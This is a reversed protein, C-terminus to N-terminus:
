GGFRSQRQDSTYVTMLVTAALDAVQHALDLVQQALDLVQHAFQLM